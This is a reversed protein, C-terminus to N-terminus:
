TRCNVPLYTSPINTINEGKVTMQPPWPSNGCIWTVPVIPADDVVAPRISLIKGKLAGSANNGFTMNIVGDAITVASIQNNVIKEAAPLGAAANDAPFTQTAAWAAAIPPEAVAALPPYAQAVQDRILRDQLAPVAMLALIAFIGVVVLAEIMTFGRRVKM